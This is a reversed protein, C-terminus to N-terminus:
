SARDIQVTIDLDFAGADANAAEVIQAGIVGCDFSGDPLPEYQERSSVDGITGDGYIPAINVSLRM